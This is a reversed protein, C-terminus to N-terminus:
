GVALCVCVVRNARWNAAVYNILVHAFTLVNLFPSWEIVYGIEGRNPYLRLNVLVVNWKQGHATLLVRHWQVAHLYHRRRASKRIFDKAALECKNIRM